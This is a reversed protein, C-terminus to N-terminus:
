SPKNLLELCAEAWTDTPVQNKHLAEFRIENFSMQQAESVLSAEGAYLVAAQLSRRSKIRRLLRLGAKANVREGTRNPYQGDTSVLDINGKRLFRLAGAYDEAELIEHDVGKSTLVRGLSVVLIRRTFSRDEVVLIRKLEV